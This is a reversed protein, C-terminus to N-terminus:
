QWYLKGDDGAYLDLSRYPRCRDTLMDGVKGKGRDWFGAGHGNRTLSFDQGFQEATWHQALTVPNLSGLFDSCDRVARVYTAPAIDEISYFHDLPLANTGEREDEDTEFYHGTWIATELYQRVMRRLYDHRYENSEYKM